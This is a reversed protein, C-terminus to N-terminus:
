DAQGYFHENGCKRAMYNEPSIPHSVAPSGGVEDSALPM